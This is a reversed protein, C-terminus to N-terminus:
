NINKTRGIIILLEQASRHDSDEDALELYYRAKDIDQPVIEGELYIKGLLYDLENQEYGSLNKSEITEFIKKAKLKNKSVGIGYYYCLGITIEQFFDESRHAKEYLEFAKKYNLKNRYELGLNYIARSSGNEICKQYLKIGLEVDVECVESDRDTLYDAYRETGTINGSEYSKKIWEFALKLNQEIIVVNDITLSNEYWFAVENMADSNGNEAKQLLIKWDNGNKVDLNETM